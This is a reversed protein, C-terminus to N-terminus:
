IESLKKFLEKWIEQASSAENEDSTVEPENDYDQIAAHLRETIVGLIIFGRTFNDSEFYKCATELAKFIGELEDKNM